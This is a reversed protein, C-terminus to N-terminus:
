YLVFFDSYGAIMPYELAKKLNDFDFFYKISKKIKKSLGMRDEDTKLYSELRYSTNGNYQEFCKAALEVSPIESKYNVAVSNMAKSIDRFRQYRWFNSKVLPVYSGLYAEDNNSISLSELINKENIYPNLVLDDGIFVFHTCDIDELAERAQAIYGQFQYSSEYVGIVNTDDGEYFPVIFRINSFRKSYM